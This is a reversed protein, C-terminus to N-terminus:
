IGRHAEEKHGYRQPIQCLQADAAISGGFAPKYQSTELHGSIEQISLRAKAEEAKTSFTPHDSKRLNVQNPM